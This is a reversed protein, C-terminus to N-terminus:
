SAAPRTQLRNAFETASSNELRLIAAKAVAQNRAGYRELIDHASRLKHGTISAVQAVELGASFMTVVATGRLDRLQLESIGVARAHGHFQKSLEKNNGATFWPRGDPRTLIFPGRREMGDLMRKLGTTVPLQLRVSTKKQKVKIYSGDYDSWRFQILDSYRQGTHLALILAQQLEIPATEMFVNIDAETWVLDRRDGKHIREFGHLPNASIEGRSAAFSFVASLVSMRNDAERPRERGVAEQYELFVGRVKPSELAKSPMDGFEKELATLM